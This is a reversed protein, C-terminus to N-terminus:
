LQYTFWYPSSFSPTRFKPKQFLGEWIKNATSSTAGCELDRNIVRGLVIADDQSLLHMTARVLSHASNGTVVRNAIVTELEDLASELTETGDYKLGVFMEPNVTMFYNTQKDYALRFVRKLTENGAHQKLIAEKELRSSTSAVQDLIAKITM